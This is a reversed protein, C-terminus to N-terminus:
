KTDGPLAPSRLPIGMRDEPTGITHTSMDLTCPWARPVVHLSVVCRADFRDPVALLMESAICIYIIM